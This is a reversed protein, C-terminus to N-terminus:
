FTFTQATLPRAHADAHTRTSPRDLDANLQTASARAPKKIMTNMRQIAHRQLASALVTKKAGTPTVLACTHAAYANAPRLTGFKCTQANTLFAFANANLLMGIHTTTANSQDAFASVHKLTGFRM